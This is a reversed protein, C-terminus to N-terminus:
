GDKEVGNGLPLGGVLKDVIWTGREGDVDAELVVADETDIGDEDEVETRAELSSPVRSEVVNDLVKGVVSETDDELQLRSAPVFVVEAMVCEVVEVAKGEGEGDPAHTCM